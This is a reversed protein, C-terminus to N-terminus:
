RQETGKSPADWSTLYNKQAETLEDIEVRLSELKLRAIQEDAGEPVPYVRPSLERGHKVLHEVALAQHAFSMDMVAPPHGEAASLNVLRGEALLYIRRGGALTFREVLPRVEAREAARAILEGKNIEIDFHGANCVITGDGMVDFMEGDVADRNGTATIVVDARASAEIAPLVTFGDMVAELARLPDVECVIVNAGLGKARMAIGQGCSGYGIVVVVRGAILLNTARLIGDLTSQGTGYRTDFLHAIRARNVAIVPYELTGDRELAQLRIAGTTTEETGGIVEALLERRSGHLAGVIDAGDDLTIQPESDCVADIHRMYAAADEGHIAHVAAGDLEALAAAVEDQTSLPNSACIAVEAGGSILARVLNATEATIHLSAAVQIGALPRESAFREALRGLVPMENGAWEVRLAGAEALTPDAIEATTGM